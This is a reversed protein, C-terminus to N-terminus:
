ACCCCCTTLRGPSPVCAWCRSSARCRRRTSWTTTSAPSAGKRWDRSAPPLGAALEPVARGLELLRIARDPEIGLPGIMEAIRGQAIRRAVEIQGLRLHAHVAGLGVALDRDNDAEIFPIQHDDWRVTVPAQVPLAETPLMALRETTSLRPPRGRRLDAAVLGALVAIGRPWDRWGAIM